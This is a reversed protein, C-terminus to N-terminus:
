SFGAVQERQMLKVLEWSNMQFIVGVFGEKPIGHGDAGGTNSSGPCHMSSGGVVHANWRSNNRFLKLIKCEEVMEKTLFLKPRGRKRPAPEM